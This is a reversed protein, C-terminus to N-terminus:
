AKLKTIFEIFGEAQTALRKDLEPDALKGNDFKKFSDGIFVRRPYLLANRYAAVQQLHEVARLSQFQGAALGVFACPRAEFGEPYPLMDIFLKLVGPFSGNYEPVIFVVGDAALFRTVLPQVDAPTEKYADPALASTPLDELDLLDVEHGTTQYTAVLHRAMLRSMAGTRNTGCVVVIRM